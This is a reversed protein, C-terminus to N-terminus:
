RRPLPLTQEIGQPDFQWRRGAIDLCDRLARSTKGSHAVDSVRGTGSVTVVLDGKAGCRDMSKRHRQIYAVIAEPDPKPNRAKLRVADRDDPMVHGDYTKKRSVAQRRLDGLDEVSVAFSGCYNAVVTPNPTAGDATAISVLDAIEYGYLARLERCGASFHVIDRGVQFVGDNSYSSPCPPMGSFETDDRHAAVKWPAMADGDKALRGIRVSLTRFFVNEENYRITAVVTWPELEFGDRMTRHQLNGAKGDTGVRCLPFFSEYSAEPKIEAEVDRHPNHARLRDVWATAAPDDARVPTAVWCIM